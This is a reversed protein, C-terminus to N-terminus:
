AKKQKSLYELFFAAFIGIFLSTVGALMMSQRVKPRSRHKTPVAKDIVQITMNISKENMFETLADVYYNAINAALVPDKWEVSITVSGEKSKTIKTISTSLQKVTDEMLPPKDPNKWAGKTEDWQKNNIVKVLDFKKIVAEAITRSKLVIMIRDASSQGGVGGLAGAFPLASLAAGLGGSESGSTMIMTDSKYFKPSQLGIIMATTVSIVSLAILMIKRRWLVNWYELLNIEDEHEHIQDQM